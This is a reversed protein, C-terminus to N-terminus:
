KILNNDVIYEIAATIADEPDKTGVEIYRSSENDIWVWVAGECTDKIRIGKERRLWLWVDTYIPADAVNYKQIKWRKEVLEGEKYWLSDFCCNKLVYRLEAEGQPYGAEKLAKAIMFSVTKQAM